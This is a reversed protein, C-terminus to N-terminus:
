NHSGIFAPSGDPVISDMVDVVGSVLLFDSVAKGSDPLLRPDEGNRLAEWVAKARGSGGIQESLEAVSLSLFPPITSKASAVLSIM